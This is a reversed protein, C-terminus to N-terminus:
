KKRIRLKTARLPINFDISNWHIGDRLRRPQGTEEFNISRLNAAKSNKM